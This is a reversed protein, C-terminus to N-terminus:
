SLAMDSAYVVVVILYSPSILDVLPLPESMTHRKHLSVKHM